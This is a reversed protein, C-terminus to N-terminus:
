AVSIHQSVIDRIVNLQYTTQSLFYVSIDHALPQAYDQLKAKKMDNEIKELVGEASMNEELRRSFIEYASDTIPNGSPTYGYIKKDKDIDLFDYKSHLTAMQDSLEISGQLNLIDREIEKAIEWVSFLIAKKFQKEKQLFVRMQNAIEAQSFVDTYKVNLENLVRWGDDNRGALQLYMPLRLREKVMLENADSAAYAEKLKECAADYNKDKKLQTAEKLLERASYEKNLFPHQFLKSLKSFLEM